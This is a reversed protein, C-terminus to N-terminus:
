KGEKPLVEIAYDKLHCASLGCAGIYELADRFVDREERAEDRQLLVGLYADVNESDAALLQKLKDREERAEDRERELRRAFAADILEVLQVSGDSKHIHRREIISADTKPTPRSM